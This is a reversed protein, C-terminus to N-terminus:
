QAKRKDLLMQLSEKVTMREDKNSTSGEKAWQVLQNYTPRSSLSGKTKSVIQKAIEKYEKEKHM